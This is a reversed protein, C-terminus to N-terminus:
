DGRNVSTSILIGLVGGREGQRNKWEATYGNFKLLYRERIWTKCFCVIDPEKDILMQKIEPLKNYISNCNLSLINLQEEDNTNLQSTM